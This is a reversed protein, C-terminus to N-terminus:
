DIRYTCDCHNKEGGVKTMTHASEASGGFEVILLLLAMMLVSWFAITNKM